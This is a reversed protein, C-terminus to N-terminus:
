ALPKGLVVDLSRPGCNFLLDVTALGPIFDGFLQPYPTPAWGLYSHGVGAREFKDKEIYAAEGDSSIYASAGVQRCIDLILDTKQGAFTLGSVDRIPTTVGLAERIAAVLHLNLDALWEWPRAYTAELWGAYDNWFPADHYNHRLAEWHKRRWGDDVVRTDRILQHYKGKVEVPVSLWTAGARTKIRNRVQWSRKNLQVFDMFVFEDVRAMKQFFGAFPLYVPQHCAIVKQPRPHEM